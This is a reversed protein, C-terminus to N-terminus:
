FCSVMSLTVVSPMMMSIRYKEPAMNAKLIDLRKPKMNLFSEGGISSIAKDWRM